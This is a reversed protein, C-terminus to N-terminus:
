EESLVKVNSQHIPLEREIIGGKVNKQQNPRVHKKRMNINEVLIRQKKPFVRLVKGTRGRDRQSGTVVKVVDGKKVFARAM